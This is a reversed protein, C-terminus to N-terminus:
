ESRLAVIDGKSNFAILIDNVVLPPVTISAKGIRYRGIFQGDERHLWHLYGEIDGVVVYDGISVPATVFRAQLKEQKWWDEGSYRDLAWIHSKTDSVYLYDIDADLGTYSSIEREWLLKGKTLDIAVTRGQYSTVYVMNGILLPDADIDVMRELESRGRSIAVAAEWIVKGTDLELLAIKGNDFGALISEQGVIPTSTGRLSLLPLRSREYIWLHEGTKSDLGFLKGDGTRVVVIGQNIIPKALIESSVQARWQETGDTDSFAVVDGKQTGVLVLGEGIGPGSSIPVDIKQGWKQKGDKFNFARLHGEKSATFIEDNYFVPALKFYGDGTGGGAYATWLTKLTLTSKFNVLPAPPETNDASGACGGLGVICLLLLRTLM